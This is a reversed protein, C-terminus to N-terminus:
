IRRNATKHYFPLWNSRNHLIVPIEEPISYRLNCIRYAAGKYKGIYLCHDTVEHYKKDDM